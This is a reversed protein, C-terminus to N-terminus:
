LKAPTHSLQRLSGCQRVSLGLDFHLASTSIFIHDVPLLSHMEGLMRLCQVHLHGSPLTHRISQGSNTKRQGSRSELSLCVM